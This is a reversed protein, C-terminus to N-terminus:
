AEGYRVALDAAIQEIVSDSAIGQGTTTRAWVTMGAFDTDVKEGREALQEALWNSVIWHEYVERQYPEINHDECINAFARPTDRYRSGDDEPGLKAWKREQGFTELKWGAQIVAEEWDDIPACLDAAQEVMESLPRGGGARGGVLSARNSPALEAEGQALTSVMYSVCYHVEASVIQEPTRSM